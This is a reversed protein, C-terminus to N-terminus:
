KNINKINKPATKPAVPVRTAEDPADLKLGSSESIPANIVM